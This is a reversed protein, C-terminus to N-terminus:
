KENGGVQSSYLQLYLSLLNWTRNTILRSSLAPVRKVNRRAGKTIRTEENWSMDRYCEAGAEGWPVGKPVVWSDYCASRVVFEVLVYCQYM